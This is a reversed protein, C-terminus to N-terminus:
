RTSSTANAVIPDDIRHIQRVTILVLLRDAKLRSKLDRSFGDLAITQGDELLSEGGQEQAITPKTEGTGGVIRAGKPLSLVMKQIDPADFGQFLRIDLSINAAKLQPKIDAGEQFFAPVYSKPSGDKNQLEHYFDGFSQSKIFQAKMAGFTTVRPATVIRAKKSSILSELKELDAREIAGINQYLADFFGRYHQDLLSVWRVSIEFQPIPKDLSAVVNILRQVSKGENDRWNRAVISNTSDDPTFEWWCTAYNIPEVSEDRPIPAVGFVDPQLWQAMLSPKVNRLEIRTETEEPHKNMSQVDLGTEAARLPAVILASFLAVTLAIKM